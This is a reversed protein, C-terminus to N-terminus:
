GGANGEGRWADETIGRVLDATDAGCLRDVDRLYFSWRTKGKRIWDRAARGAQRFVNRHCAPTAGDLAQQLDRLWPLGKLNFMADTVSAKDTTGFGYVAVAEADSCKLRLKVYTHQWIREVKRTFVNSAGIAAGDIVASPLAMAGKALIVNGMDRGLRRVFAAEVRPRAKTCLGEDAHAVGAFLLVFVIMIM